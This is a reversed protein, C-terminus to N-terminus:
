APLTIWGNPPMKGRPNRGLGAHRCQVDCTPVNSKEHVYGRKQQRQAADEAEHQLKRMFGTLFEPVGLDFRVYCLLILVTQDIISVAGSSISHRDENM